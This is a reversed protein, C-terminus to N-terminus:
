CILKEVHLWVPRLGQHHEPRPSRRTRLWRLNRGHEPVDTLLATGRSHEWWSTSRVLRAGSRTRPEAATVARRDPCRSRSTTPM